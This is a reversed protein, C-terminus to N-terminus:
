AGGSIPLQARVMWLQEELTRVVEVLVDESASDLESLREMGARARESAGSLRSVLEEVVSRDAIPGRELRGGAAGVVAEAQGDPWYALAVAREAVTDALDRWADIMEDLHLHLPRFLPGVVSWHLQKGVLSLDVLDVLTAQLAEGAQEREAAGLAPLSGTSATTSAM